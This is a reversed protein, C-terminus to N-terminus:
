GVAHAATTFGRERLQLVEARILRAFTPYVALGFIIMVNPISPGLVGILVIAMVITPVAMQIDVLRMLLDASTSRASGALLGLAGGVLLALGVSGFAVALSVRSGYLIRSLVDRGLHDTG